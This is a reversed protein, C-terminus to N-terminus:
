VTVFLISTMFFDPITQTFKCYIRNTLQSCIGVMEHIFLNTLTLFLTVLLAIRGPTAHLPVAFSIVSVVLIAMCPLYYMMVFPQLKRRMKVDYGVVKNSTEEDLYGEFFGISVAFDAAEYEKDKHLSESPDLLELDLGSSKSGFRLSCSQVDKPYDKFDFECYIMAKTELTYEVVTDNTDLSHNSDLSLGLINYSNEHSKWDTINHFYLLPRWLTLIQYQLNLGIGGNKKDEDSFNTKIRADIWQLKLKLDAIIFERKNDVERINEKLITTFIKTSGKDPIAQPRYNYPICAGTELLTDDVTCGAQKLLEKEENTSYLGAKATGLLLFVILCSKEM